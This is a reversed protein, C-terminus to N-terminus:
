REFALGYKCNIRLDKGAGTWGGKELLGTPRPWFKFHNLCFVDSTHYSLGTTQGKWENWGILWYGNSWGIGHGCLENDNFCYEKDNKSNCCTFM